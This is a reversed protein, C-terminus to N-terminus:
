RGFFQHLYLLKGGDAMVVLRSSAVDCGRGGMTAPVAKAIYNDHIPPMRAAVGDRPTRMDDEAGFSQTASTLM